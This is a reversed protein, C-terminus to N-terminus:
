VTIFKCFFYYFILCLVIYVAYAIKEASITKAKRETKAPAKTRFQAKAVEQM